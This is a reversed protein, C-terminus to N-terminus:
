LDSPNEEGDVLALLCGLQIGERPVRVGQSDLLRAVRRPDGLDSWEVGSVQLVALNFPCKALVESSLNSPPMQSYLRRMRAAEASNGLESEIASFADYLAPLASLFLGLFTSLRAVVVFSNWLCGMRMLQQALLPNPKEWFRRVHRVPECEHALFPGPEIWGYQPEPESPEIGLLVTAEPRADIARFAAEVYHMFERDDGVFHDSPFMAVACDPAIKKLRMPSYLIAPATGRNCPQVAVQEGSMGTMVPQYFRAHGATFVTLMRAPEVLLAARRRTQELLTHKGWLRCFQKPIEEGFIERTFGRLRTGDGGALILAARESQFGAIM